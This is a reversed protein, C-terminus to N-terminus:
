SANVYNFVQDTYVYSPRALHLRVPIEWNRFKEINELCTKSSNHHYKGWEGTKTQHAGESKFLAM